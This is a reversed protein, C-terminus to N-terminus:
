QARGGLITDIRSRMALLDSTSRNALPDAEVAELARARHKMRRVAGREVLGNILRNVGSKSALGLRTRIEDFSPASGRTNFERIIALAESQRPTLSMM